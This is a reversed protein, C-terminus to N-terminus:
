SATPTSANPIKSVATDVANFLNKVSTGINTLAVIAIVSVLGVIIAYEVMGQGTELDKLHKKLWDSAEDLLLESEVWTKLLLDNM